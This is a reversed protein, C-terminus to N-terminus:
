LIQVLMNVDVTTLDTTTTALPHVPGYGETSHIKNILRLILSLIYIIWICFFFFITCKPKPLVALEFWNNTQIEKEKSHYYPLHRLVQPQETFVSFCWPHEGLPRARHGMDLETLPLTNLMELLPLHFKIKSYIYILLYTGHWLSLTLRLQIVNLSFWFTGITPM